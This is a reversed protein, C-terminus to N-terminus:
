FKGPTGIYGDELGSGYAKVRSADPAPHVRVKFPSGPIEQGSWLPTIIYRGPNTAQFKISYLGNVGESMYVKPRYKNPGEIMAELKGTGAESTDVTVEPHSGCVHVANPQIAPGGVICKSADPASVVNIKFPSGLIHTKNVEINAVYAGPKRPTYSVTYTGNQNDKIDTKLRGARIGSVSIAMAKKKLLGTETTIVTFSAEQGVMATKLGDGTANCINKSNEVNIIFPSNPIHTKGWLLDLSVQGVEWPTFAVDYKGETAKIDAKYTATPGKAIVTLEGKGADKTQVSFSVAEGTTATKSTIVSGIANCKNADSINVHFPSGKINFGGWLISVSTSDVHKGNFKMVYSSIDQKQVTCDMSPHEKAGNFFIQLEGEGAGQTNVVVDEEAGVQFQDPFKGFIKCNQPDVVHIQLPSGSVQVGSCEVFIDYAGAALPTFSHSCKGDKPTLSTHEKEGRPGHQTVDIVDDSNFKKSSISFTIPDLVRAYKELLNLGSISYRNPDIVIFIFPSNSTEFGGFKVSLSTNGFSEPTYTYCFVSGSQSSPQLLTMESSDFAGVAVEPSSDGAGECTVSFQMTKMEVMGKQPPLDSIKCKSPDIVNLDLPTGPIDDGEWKIELLHHGIDEPSYRVHKERKGDQEQDNTFVSSIQGGNPNRGTISLTGEGADTIDVGFQISSNVRFVFPKKALEVAEGFVRCKSADSAALVNVSFPSGPIHSGDSTISLSYVGAVPVAYEVSYSANGHDFVRVVAANCKPDFDDEKVTTSKFQENSVQVQLINDELLGSTPGVLLCKAAKQATAERLGDGSVTFQNADGVKVFNVEFPSDPIHTDGWLVDITHVGVEYTTFSVDYVGNDSETVMAAYTAKQGKPKVILEGKGAGETLVTFKFPIKCKGRGETISPGYASCKTADCVQILCPTPSIPNGEWKVDISSEGVSVPTLHITYLEPETSDSSTTVTLVSPQSSSVDVAGVGAGKVNLRITSPKGIQVTSPVADLFECKGPDTATLLLPSGRIDGGACTVSIKYEGTEAPTFTAVNSGDGQPIVNLEDPKSSDPRTVEATIGGLNAESAIITFTAPKNAVLPQGVPPDVMQVSCQSPDVVRVEFPNGPIEIGAIKAFVEDKGPRTPTYTCEMVGDEKLVTKATETNGDSHQILVDLDGVDTIGKAEMVVISGIKASQGGTIQKGTFSFNGLDIVDPHFPSGPIPSESWKVEVTLEGAVQPVYKVEILDNDKHILQAEIPHQESDTIIVALDGAGGKSCDAEFTASRGSIAKFLGHGKCTIMHPLPIPKAFQFRSLYTAVNLEDVKPDALQAPTLVPKVGLYEEGIKMAQVLNDLSQHPDLQHCDPLTGPLLVNLLCSLNIGDNWDKNFNTINREPIVSQIWALLRDNAPTCFSSVYTMVSLEDVQPHCLDEAELLRFVGLEEEALAMGQRCNELENGSQLTAYQPCLGPKIRDILACLAIGDNWDTTFNKVNQDPVQTNVWTLLAEKTSMATGMSRIQFRRVLTWILGLILKINGNYIDM